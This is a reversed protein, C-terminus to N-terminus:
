SVPWAPLMARLVSEASGRLDPHADGGHLQRVM